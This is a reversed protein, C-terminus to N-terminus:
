PREPLSPARTRTGRRGPSPAEWGPLVMRKAPDTGGSSTAEFRGIGHARSSAPSFAQEARFAGVTRRRVAFWLFRRRATKPAVRGHAEPFSSLGRGRGCGIRRLASDRWRRLSRLRPLLRALLSRKGSIGG